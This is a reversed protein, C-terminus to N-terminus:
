LQQSKSLQMHDINQWFCDLRESDFPVLDNISKDYIALNEIYLGNSLYANRQLKNNIKFFRKSIMPKKKLLDIYYISQDLTQEIKSTLNRDLEGYTLLYVKALAIQKFQNVSKFNNYFRKDLNDITDNLYHFLNENKIDCLILECLIRLPNTKKAISENFKTSYNFLLKSLHQYDVFPFRYRSLIFYFHTANVKSRLNEDKVYQDYALKLLNENYVNFKAYNQLLDFMIEKLRANKEINQILYSTLFYILKPSYFNPFEHNIDDTFNHLKYFFFEFNEDKPELCLTEYITTNCKDILDNLIRPFLTKYKYRLEIEKYQDKLLRNKPKNLREKLLFHNLKIERLLLVSHKFTLEINPSLLQETLHKIVVFNLDNEPRLFIFFYNVTTKIDKLNIENKLIKNKLARLLFRNFEILRSNMFSSQERLLYHMHKLCEEIETLQLDNSRNCLQEIIQNFLPNKSDEILCFTNLLVILCRTDLQKVTQSTQKFLSKFVTSDKLTKRLEIARSFDFEPEFFLDNLRNFVVALQNGKIKGQLKQVLNLFSVLDSCKYFSEILDNTTSNPLSTQGNISNPLSTESISNTFKISNNNKTEFFQEKLNSKKVIKSDITTVCNRLYYQLSKTARLNQFKLVSRIM